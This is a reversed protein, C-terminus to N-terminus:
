GLLGAHDVHVFMGRHLRLLRGEKVLATLLNSLANTSLSMDFHKAMGERLMPTTVPGKVSWAAYEVLGVKTVTWRKRNQYLVLLPKNM